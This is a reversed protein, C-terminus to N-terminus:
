KSEHLTVKESFAEISLGRGTDADISCVCGNIEVGGDALDFRSPMGSVFKSIAREKLVGIVSDTPGTMGVDTIYATGAALLRADATQVHTHTGFVLSYNGDVYHGMAVKESTAEAHFDMVCISVGQERFGDAAQKAAKFPCDIAEMFVRGMLNVVGVTHGNKEFVGSGRGPVGEPFNLPRLLRPEKDIVKLIEKNRWVHNGTTLVDVGLSFLETCIKPTLGFGGAANEANAIVFDAQHRAILDKLLLALSKRGPQGVIDGICLIRM